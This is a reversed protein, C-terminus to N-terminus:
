NKKWHTTFGARVTGMEKLEEPLDVPETVETAFWASTYRMPHDKDAQMYATKDTLLSNSAKLEGYINPDLFMSIQVPKNGRIKGAHRKDLALNFFMLLDATEWTEPDLEVTMKIGDNSVSYELLSGCYEKYENLTFCATDSATPM